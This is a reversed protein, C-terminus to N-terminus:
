FYSVSIQTQQLKSYDPGSNEFNQNQVVFKLRGHEKHAEFELVAKSLDSLTEVKDPKAPFSIYSVVHLIECAFSFENHFQLFFSLKVFM